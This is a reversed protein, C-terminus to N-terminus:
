KKWPEFGNKKINNNNEKKIIEDNWCENNIYTTPHKRWQKDKGDNEIYLPIHKFIKDYEKISIKMFAQKAKKKNKRYDYMNWFKEFASEKIAKNNNSISNNNISNIVDKNQVCEIGRNQLEQVDENKISDNDQEPYMVIYLNNNRLDNKYLKDKKILGKNILIDMHKYFRNRSINLNKLITEVKPFCYDKTGTYSCLLSYIAKAEITLTEDCMVSNLIMGYGTPMKKYGM